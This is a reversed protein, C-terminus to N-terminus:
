PRTQHGLRRVPSRFASTANRRRVAILLIVEGQPWSRFNGSGRTPHRSKSPCAPLRIKARDGRLITKAGM